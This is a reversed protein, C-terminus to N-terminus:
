VCYQESIGYVVRGMGRVLSNLYVENGCYGQQDDRDRMVFLKIAPVSGEPTASDAGGSNPKIWFSLSNADKFPQYGPGGCERCRFSLGGGKSALQVCTAASGNM